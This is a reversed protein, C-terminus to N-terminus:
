KAYISSNSSQFKCYRHVKEHKIIDDEYIEKGNIDKFGTYQGVTEPIVVSSLMVGKEEYDICPQLTNGKYTFMRGKSLYGYVWENTDVRQGRFKIERM